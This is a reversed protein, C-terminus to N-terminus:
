FYFLCNLVSYDKGQYSSSKNKALLEAGLTKNLIHQGSKRGESRQNRELPALITQRPSEM